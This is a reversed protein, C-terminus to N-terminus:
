GNALYASIEEIQDPSMYKISPHMTGSVRAQYYLVQLQTRIYEGHQGALRPVLGKGEGQAGHCSQCAPINPAGAQYLARGKGVLPGDPKPMTPAQDAFYKALEPIVKDATGIAVPWMNQFEHTDAKTPDRFVAFRAALYDAQQGNLRPVMGIASNGGPGHCAECSKVIPALDSGTPQAGAYASSLLAGAFVVYRVINKMRLGQESFIRPM